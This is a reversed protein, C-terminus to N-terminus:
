ILTIRIPPIEVFPSEDDDPLLPTDTGPQTTDAPVDTPTADNESPATKQAESGSNAQECAPCSDGEPSNKPPDCGVLLLSLVGLIM